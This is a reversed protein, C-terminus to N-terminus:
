RSLRLSTIRFDAPEPWTVINCGTMLGLKGGSLTIAFDKIQRIRFGTSEQRVVPIGVERGSGPNRDLVLDVEAEVVGLLVNQM